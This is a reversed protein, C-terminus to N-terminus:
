ASRPQLAIFCGTCVYAWSVTLLNGTDIIRGELGLFMHRTRVKLVPNGSGAIVLLCPFWDAPLSYDVDTNIHEDGLFKTFGLSIDM